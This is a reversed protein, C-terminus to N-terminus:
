PQSAAIRRLLPFRLHRLRSLSIQGIMGSAWIYTTEIPMPERSLGGSHGKPMFMNEVVFLRERIQRARRSYFEGNRTLVAHEEDLIRMEEYHREEAEKPTEKIIKIPGLERINPM